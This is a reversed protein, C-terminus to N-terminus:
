CKRTIISNLPQGGAEMQKSVRGKKGEEGEEERGEGQEEEGGGGVGGGKGGKNRGEGEEWVEERGEGQEEERGGRGRGGRGGGEEGRGEEGGEKERGRGVRMAVSIIIFIVVSDLYYAIFIELVTFTSCKRSKYCM